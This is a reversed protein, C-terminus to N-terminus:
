SGTVLQSGTVYAGGQSPGHWLVSVDALVDRSYSFTAIRQTTRLPSDEAKILEKCFLMGGGSISMFGGFVAHRQYHPPANCFPWVRLGRVGSDVYFQMCRGGGRGGVLHEVPLFLETPLSDLQFGLHLVSTPELGWHLLPNKEWFGDEPCVRKTKCHGYLGRHAIAQILLQACTLFGLCQCGYWQRSVHFYQVRQYSYHTASSKHNSPQIWSLCGLNRQKRRGRGKFFFLRKM